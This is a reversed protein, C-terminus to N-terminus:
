LLYDQTLTHETISLDTVSNTHDSDLNNSSVYSSPVQSATFFYYGTSLGDQASVAIYHQGTYTPTYTLMTVVSSGDNLTKTDAIYNGSSDFLGDITGKIYETSPLSASDYTPGGNYYINYAVGETLEIQLWDHDGAKEFQGSLPANFTLIGSTNTTAAFDDDYSSVTLIYNGTQYGNDTVSIYYDGSTSPTFTYKNDRGDPNLSDYQTNAVANGLHDYVGEIMGSTTGSQTLQYSKGAELSVKIWDEDAVIDLTGSIVGQGSSNLTIQGTTNINALYDDSYVSPASFGYSGTVPNDTGGVSFFYQGTGTPSFTIATSKLPDYSLRMSDINQGTSDNLGFIVVEETNGTGQYMLSYSTDATFDLAFWDIDGVSELRGEAGRSTLVKGVTSTDADFDDQETTFSINYGGTSTGGSSQIYYTSSVTPTYTLTVAASNSTDITTNTVLNGQSDFLKLESAISSSGSPKMTFTYTKGAELTTKNWDFDGQVEINGYFNKHLIMEGATSTDDAYDDVYSSVTLLFPASNLTNEAVSVYHTGTYDPTYTLFTTEGEAHDWTSTDTIYEGTGNYIGAIVGNASGSQILSYSQGATLDVKVWDEDTSELQGSLAGSGSSDLIIQGTTNINDAYDDEYIQATLFYSGTKTSDLASLAVFHEGTYDATYTFSRVFESNPNSMITTNAIANGSRDYLGHLLGLLHTPDQDPYYEGNYFIRYSEGQTMNIKLWDQDGATEFYGSVLGGSYQQNNNFEGSTSIDAAYDGSLSLTYDGLSLDSASASIYYTGTTSPTYLMSLAEGDQGVTVTDSILNGQNDFISVMANALRDDSPSTIDGELTLRYDRNATLTVKFWDADGGAEISGTTSGSDDLVGTTNVDARFDDDFTAATLLFNGTQQASDGVSIYYTGTENSTYTVANERTETNGISSNTNIIYNGQSDYLGRIYGDATGSQYMIYTKGADMHLKIWDTDGATEILGGRIGGNGPSGHQNLEGTTHIDSSYDDDVLLSVKYTGTSDDAASAAVYYTATTDSTYTLLNDASNQSTTVTNSVLNGNSDFLQLMRDDIHTSGLGDTQKIQYTKGAGLKVEFWDTDGPKEITGYREFHPFIETDTSTNAVYDDDYTSVTLLFNGTNQDADGVAIYHVGTYDPTFSLYHDRTNDESINSNTNAIYNGQSDYVGEIYGATTGTQVLSYTKGAELSVKVWDIDGSSNLEGSLGGSGSSDLTIEGTTSIDAPYDDPTPSATFFYHGTSVSDQASASIYHKGTYAATYSLTTVVSSTDNTVTTGSIYNGSSDYLGDIKGKIYENQSSLSAYTAGGNFYFSYNVGKTLEVELWDHDGASEFQGSKTSSFTLEGTTNIDASYDDTNSAFSIKYQGTNSSSAQVYHEGSTTATYTLTLESSNDINSAGASLYGGNSDFMLLSGGLSSGDSSKMTYTYTKGAELTAKFWDDDHTVEINGNYEQNLQMEGSTNTAASFDDDYASITLLFNGTQQESDAVAIYYDGTASPTFTYYNGRADPNVFDFQSNAQVNGQSNYIGYIVGGPTGTQALKYSKGAELSVKIWDIDGSINIKGSLGGSGSSDLIIEGTTTIDAPYEDESDVPTESISTQGGENVGSEPVSTNLYTEAFNSYSFVTGATGALPNGGVEFDFSDADLITIQSGNSTEILLTNSAVKSQSVVIDSVFQIKNAGSSDSITINANEDLLHQSILYTDDGIGAGVIGRQVNITDNAM